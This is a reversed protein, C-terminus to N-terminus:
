TVESGRKVVPESHAGTDFRAPVPALVLAGLIASVQEERGKQSNGWVRKANSVEAISEPDNGYPQCDPIPMYGVCSLNVPRSNSRVM